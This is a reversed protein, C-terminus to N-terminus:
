ERGTKEADEDMDESAELHAEVAEEMDAKVADRADTEDMGDAGHEKVGPEEQTDEDRDAEESDSHAETRASEEIEEVAKEMDTKGDDPITAGSVDETVGDMEEADGAMKEAGDAIKEERDAMEEAGDNMEGTSVDEAGGAATDTDDAEAELTVGDQTDIVSDYVDTDEVTIVEPMKSGCNSCFRETAAVEMNCCPCLVVGKVNRIQDQLLDMLRFGEEIAMIDEEFGELPADKYLDYLKKGMETYIRSIKKKEESIRSNLQRVENMKQVETVTDKSIKKIKKSIEDFNM